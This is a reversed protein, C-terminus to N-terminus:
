KGVIGDGDLDPLLIRGELNDNNKKRVEEVYLQWNSLNQQINENAYCDWFEGNKNDFEIWKAKNFDRSKLTNDPIIIHIGSLLALGVAYPILNKLTKKM